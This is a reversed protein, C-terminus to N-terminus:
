KADFNRRRTSTVHAGHWPKSNVLELDDEWSPPCYDIAQALKFVKDLIDGLKSCSYLDYGVQQGGQLVPLANLGPDGSSVPERSYVWGGPPCCGEQARHASVPKGETM